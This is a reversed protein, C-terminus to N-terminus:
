MRKDKPNLTQRSYDGSACGICLSCFHENLRLQVKIFAEATQKSTM